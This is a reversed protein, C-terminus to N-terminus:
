YKKGMVYKYTQAVFIVFYILESYLFLIYTLSSISRKEDPFNARTSIGGHKLEEVKGLIKFDNQSLSILHVDSHSHFSDNQCAREAQNVLVVVEAKGM